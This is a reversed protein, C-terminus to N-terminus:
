PLDTRKQLWATSARSWLFILAVCNALITILSLTQVSPSMVNAHHTVLLFVYSALSSGVGFALWITLAARGVASRGRVVWSVLGVIIAVGIAAGVLGRSAFHTLLSTAVFNILSAVVALAAFRVIEQPREMVDGKM